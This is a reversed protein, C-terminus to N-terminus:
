HSEAVLARGPTMDEQLVPSWGDALRTSLIAALGIRAESSQPDMAFARKFEHQAGLWRAPTYPLRYLAWGRTIAAGAAPDTSGKDDLAPSSNNSQSPDGCADNQLLASAVPQVAPATPSSHPPSPPPQEPLKRVSDTAVVAPSIANAATSPREAVALPNEIVASPSQEAASPPRNEAAAPASKEAGAPTPRSPLLNRFSTVFALGGAIWVAAMFVISATLVAKKNSQLGRLLPHRKEGSEPPHLPARSLAPRPESTVPQKILCSQTRGWIAGLLSPYNADAKM